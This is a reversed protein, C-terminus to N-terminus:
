AGKLNPSMRNILGKYNEERAMEKSHNFFSRLQYRQEPGVQAALTLTPHPHPHIESSSCRSDDM